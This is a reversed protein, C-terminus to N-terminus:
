NIVVFADRIGYSYMFRKAEAKNQFGEIRVRYLPHNNKRGTQIAVKYKRSLAKYRKMYVKAGDYQRFAGVQIATNNSTSYKGSSTNVYSVVPAVYKNANVYHDKKITTDASTEKYVYAGYSKNEIIKDARYSNKFLKKPMKISFNKVSPPKSYDIPTAYCDVSEKKTRNSALTKKWINKSKLPKAKIVAMNSPKIQLEQKSVCGNFILTSISFFLITKKNIITM